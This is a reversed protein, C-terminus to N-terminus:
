SKMVDEVMALDVEEQVIEILRARGLGFKQKCRQILTRIEGRAAAEQGSARSGVSLNKVMRVEDRIRKMNGVVSEHTPDVKGRTAAIKSILNWSSAASATVFVPKGSLLPDKLAQSSTPIGYRILENQTWASMVRKHAEGWPIEKLRPPRRELLVYLKGRPGVTWGIVNLKSLYDLAAEPTVSDQDAIM